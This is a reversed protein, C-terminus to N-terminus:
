RWATDDSKSEAPKSKPKPGKGEAGGGEAWCNQITHNIKGCKPNTCKPREGSTSGKGKGKLKSKVDARAKLALANQGKRNAEEALVSKTVRDVTLVSKEKDLLIARTTAYSPPLANCLMFALINDDLVYDLGKLKRVDDKFENIQVSMSKDDVLTNRCINQILFAASQPGDGGFKTLVADWMEKATSMDMIHHLVEESVHMTIQMCATDEDKEWKLLDAPDVPKKTTGEIHGLLNRAKFIQRQRFKWTSLNTGDDKLAQLADFLKATARDESATVPSM